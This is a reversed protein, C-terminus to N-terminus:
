KRVWQRCNKGNDPYHEDKVVCDITDIWGYHNDCNGCSRESNPNDICHREHDYLQCELQNAMYSDITAGDWTQYRKITENCYQCIVASQDEYWGNNYMSSLYKVPM